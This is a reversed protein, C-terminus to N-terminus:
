RLQVSPETERVSISSASFITTTPYLQRSLETSTSERRQNSSPYPHDVSVQTCLCTKSRRWTSKSWRSPSKTACTPKLRQKSEESSRLPPSLSSELTEPTDSSLTRNVLVPKVTPLSPITSVKGLKILCQHEWCTGYKRRILTSITRMPLITAMKISPSIMSPGSHMILLTISRRRTLRSTM